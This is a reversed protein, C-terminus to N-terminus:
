SAQLQPSPKRPTPAASALEADSDPKPSHPTRPLSAAAAPPLQDQMSDDVALKAWTSRVTRPLELLLPTTLAPGRRKLIHVSLQEDPRPQLALRLPAPSANSQASIHRMCFVLGQSQQAALQLRRLQDNRTLRNAHDNFPLWAVLAGFSASKLAQEMAWLRDAAHSTQVVVVQRVDIGLQTLGPPYPVEPPALFIVTKGARTLAALPQALLRLEGIGHRALLLEILVQQPWGGGPLEHDLATFGTAMSHGAPGALQDARWLSTHIQEPRPHPEPRNSQPQNALAPHVRLKLAGSWGQSYSRSSDATQAANIAAAAAPMTSLPLAPRSLAFAM